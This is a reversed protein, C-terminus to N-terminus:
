FHSATLIQNNIHFFVYLFDVTKPKLRAKLEIMTFLDNM